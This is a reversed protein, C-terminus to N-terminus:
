FRRLSSGPPPSKKKQLRRNVEQPSFRAPDYGPEVWELMEEYGEHQPDSLAEVLQYYGPIGGCDEPPCAMEGGICVPYIVDRDFKRSKKLLLEHEWSDGFDYTYYAKSRARPLLEPLLVHREDKRRTIGFPDDDDDPAGYTQKGRRFEHLHSDTWGMAIQIAQHLRRLTFSPPVLLARWIETHLLTIHIECVNAPVTDRAPM